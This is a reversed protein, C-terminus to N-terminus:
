LLPLFFSVPHPPTLLSVSPKLISAPGLSSLDLPSFSCPSVHLRPSLLRLLRNRPSVMDAGTRGIPPGSVREGKDEKGEGGGQAADGGYGMGELDMDGGEEQEQDGEEAGQKAELEALKKKLSRYSGPLEEKFATASASASAASASSGGKGKGKKMKRSRGGEDGNDSDSDDNGRGIIGALEDDLGAVSAHGGFEVEDDDMDGLLADLEADEAQFLPFHLCQYTLNSCVCLRGSSSEEWLPLVLPDM